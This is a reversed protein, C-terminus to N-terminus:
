LYDELKFTKQCVLIAALTLVSLIAIAPAIYAADSDYILRLAGEMTWRVPSLASFQAFGDGLARPHFFVGGLLSLFLILLGLIKNATEESKLLCCFMVGLSCSFLALSAILLMFLLFSDGFNVGWLLHFIGSLAFLSLMCFVFTALIKSLYIKYTAVPAYGIRLNANKISVEMFSNTAIIAINVAMYIIIGIGYYDHVSLLDSDYLNRNMLGLVLVMLLPFLTQYLLLAPNLCVNILDRKIISLM